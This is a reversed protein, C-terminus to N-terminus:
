GDQVLRTIEETGVGDIHVIKRRSTHGSIIRISSKSVKLKGALLKIVADNAKGGEPPATVAVKLSGAHEGVIRDASAKPQVRIPVTVGTQDRAAEIM